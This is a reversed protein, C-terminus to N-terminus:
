RKIFDYVWNQGVTQIPTTDREALLINAMERVHPQRPAAGRTDMSIVQKRLTQEELFLYNITTPAYIRGIQLGPLGATYRLPLNFQRASDPISSIQQKQIAEIALCVRGEQETSKRANQSRIPPMTPPQLSHTRTESAINTPHEARKHTVSCSRNSPIAYASTASPFEGSIESSVDGVEWGQLEVSTGM